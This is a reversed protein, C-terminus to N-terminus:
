DYGPPATSPAPPLTGNGGGGFVLFLSVIIALVVFGLVVYQAQKENKVLSGSYKMVWQIIKPTEPLSSSTSPSWKSFEVGLDNNTENINIKKNSEKKFVM